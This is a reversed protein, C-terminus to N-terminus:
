AVIITLGVKSLVKLLTDLKCNGGQEISKIQLPHVGIKQLDYTTVGADKRAKAVARGIDKKNM